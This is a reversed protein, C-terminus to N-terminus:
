VSVKMVHGPSYGAPVTAFYRQGGYDFPFSMGAFYGNPITVDVEQKEAVQAATHQPFARLFENVDIAGNGDWDFVRFAEELVPLTLSADYKLLMNHCEERHLYGPMRRAEQRFLDELPAGQSQLVQNVYELARVAATAVESRSPDRPPPPPPPAQVAFARLFENLDVGGNGDTDFATFAQELTPQTLTADYKLMMRFVDDKYLYNRDHTCEAAFLTELPAGQSQLVAQIKQLAYAAVAGSGVLKEQVSSAERNVWDVFENWDIRGDKNLDIADFVQSINQAEVGIVTLLERLEDYGIVGDKNQDFRNFLNITENFFTGQQQAMAFARFLISFAVVVQPLRAIIVQSFGL